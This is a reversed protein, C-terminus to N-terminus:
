GGDGPGEGAALLGHGHALRAETARVQDRAADRLALPARGASAPETSVTM